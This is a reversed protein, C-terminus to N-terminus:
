HSQAQQPIALTDLVQALEAPPLYGDILRGQDTIMVPTGDLGLLEGFHYGATVATDDCKAGKVAAGHMAASFAAQRDPACWVAEAKRWSASGAGDRPFPLYHVAIGMANLTPRDHELVRCYTCDFDTFVTLTHKPHPPAFVIMDAPTLQKLYALRAQDRQASTLNDGNQLSILDGRVLYRGDASVYAVQPGITIRYLGPIPTATVDAASIGLQKALRAQTASDGDAQAAPVAMLAACVVLLAAIGRM